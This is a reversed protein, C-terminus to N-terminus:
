NGHNPDKAKAFGAELSPGGWTGLFPAGFSLVYQADALEYRPLARSGFLVEYADAEDARGLPEWHVANGGTFDNLLETIAGSRYPGLYAVTKGGAKAQKVAEALRSLGEDWTTPLAM